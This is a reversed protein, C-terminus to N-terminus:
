PRWGPRRRGITFPVRVPTTAPTRRPPEAASGSPLSDGAELIRGTPELRIVTCEAAWRAAAAEGDPQNLRKALLLPVVEDWDESGPEIRWVLAEWTVIRSLNAASRVTVAATPLDRISPLPQEGPGTVVFASGEHWVHWAATPPWDDSGLWILGSKKTAEAILAPPRGSSSALAV